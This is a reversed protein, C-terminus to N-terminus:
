PDEFWEVDVTFHRQKRVSYRNVNWATNLQAALRYVNSQFSGILYDARRLVELDAAMAGAASSRGQAFWIRSQSSSRQVDEEQGWINWGVFLTRAWSLVLEHDTAIYIDRLTTGTEHHHQQALIQAIQL